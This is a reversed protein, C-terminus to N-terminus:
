YIKYRELKILLLLLKKIYKKFLINNKENFNYTFTVM